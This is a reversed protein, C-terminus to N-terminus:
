RYYLETDIANHRFKQTYFHITIPQSDSFRSIRNTRNTRTPATARSYPRVTTHHQGNSFSYQQIHHGGTLMHRLGWVEVRGLHDFVMWPIVFPVRARSIHCKHM